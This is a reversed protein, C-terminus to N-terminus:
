RGVHRSFWGDSIVDLATRAQLEELQAALQQQPERLPDAARLQAEQWKFLWSLVEDVRRARRQAASQRAREVPLEEDAFVLRSFRWHLQAELRLDAGGTLQWRDPDDLTPTLRLTQDVSRGGRLRLDPLWASTRARSEVSSLRRETRDFEGLSVVILKRVFAPTVGVHEPLTTTSDDRPSPAAPRAGDSQSAPALSRRAPVTASEPAASDSSPTARPEESPVAQSLGSRDIDFNAIADDEDVGFRDDWSVFGANWAFPTVDSLELPASTRAGAFRDLPIRVQLLAGYGVYGEASEGYASLDVDLAAAPASSSLCLVLISVTTQRM